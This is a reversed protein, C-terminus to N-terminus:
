LLGLQKGDGGAEPDTGPTGDTRAAATYERVPERVRPAEAQSGGPTRLSEVVAAPLRKFDDKLKELVDASRLGAAPHYLPYVIRGDWRMMKGHDRSIRADPFFRALSHRGLTVIVRPDILRIQADLYGKCAEVEDQQPDRNEPPRCKVVNTIFVDSRTLPVSALLDDLLKGARGVFPRGQQDENYGPGEGIFMIQATPSGEGPVAKTRSQSLGCLTCGRVDEALEELSSWGNQGAKQQSVPAM